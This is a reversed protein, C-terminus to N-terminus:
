WTILRYCAIGIAAFVLMFGSLWAWGHDLSLALFTMGSLFAPIIAARPDKDGVAHDLGVLSLWVAACGAAVIMFM